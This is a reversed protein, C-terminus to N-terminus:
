QLLCPALSGTAGLVLGLTWTDGVPLDLGQGRRIGCGRGGQRCRAARDACLRAKISHFEYVFMGQEGHCGELDPM